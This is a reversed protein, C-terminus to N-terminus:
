EPAWGFFHFIRYGPRRPDAGGDICAAPGWKSAWHYEDDLCRNVCDRISEGDRPHVMRFESKAAIVGSYITDAEEYEGGEEVVGSRQIQREAEVIERFAEAATKASLTCRFDTAGM